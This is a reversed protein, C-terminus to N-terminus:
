NHQHLTSYGTVLYNFYKGMEGMGLPHIQSIPIYTAKLNVILKIPNPQKLLLQNMKISLISWLTNVYIKSKQVQETCSIVNCISYMCYKELVKLQTNLKTIQVLKITLKNVSNGYM